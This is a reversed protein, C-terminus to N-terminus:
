ACYKRRAGRILLMFQLHGKAVHSAVSRDRSADIGPAVGQRPMTAGLASLLQTFELPEPLHLDYGADRAAQIDDKRNRGTLAISRIELWEPKMRITRMLEYGNMRPLGIDSVIADVPAAELTQITADDNSVTRVEAVELELLTTLSAATEQDDEVLLIRLGTIDGSKGSSGALPERGDTAAPLWVSMSTGSGLGTSQASIKGGHMEVLQRVLALGIRLGGRM